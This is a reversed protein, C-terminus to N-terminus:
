RRRRYYIPTDARFCRPVRIGEALKIAEAVTSAQDLIYQVWQRNNIYPLGNDREPPFVSGSVRLSEVGLGKENIGGGPFDRGFGSFTLSGYVSVWGAPRGVFDVHRVAEKANDRLNTLVLGANDFYDFRKCDVHASATKVTFATCALAVRCSASFAVTLGLLFLRRLFTSSKQTM